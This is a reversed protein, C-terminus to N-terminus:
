GHGASAAVGGLPAFMRWVDDDVGHSGDAAAAHQAADVAALGAVTKPQPALRALEVLGTSKATTLSYDQGGAASKVRCQRHAAHAGSGFILGQEGDAHCRGILAVAPEGGDFSVMAPQPQDLLWQVGCEWEEGERRIWTLCGIRWDVRGWHVAIIDGAQVGEWDTRLRCGGDSIDLFRGQVAESRRTFPNSVESFSDGGASLEVTVPAFGSAAQSGANMEGLHRVVGRLGIVVSTMIPRETPTRGQKEPRVGDWRQLLEALLAPEIPKSTGARLTALLGDLGIKLSDGDTVWGFQPSQDGRPWVCASQGLEATTSASIAVLEEMPLAELLEAVSQLQRPTLSAPGALHLALLRAIPALAAKDSRAAHHRVTAWFGDPVPRHSVVRLLYWQELFFNSLALADASVDARLGFLNKRKGSDEIPLLSECAGTLRECYSDGLPLLQDTQTNGLVLRQRLHELVLTAPRRIIELIQLQQRAPLGSQQLREILEYTERAVLPKNAFPLQEAWASIVDVRLKNPVTM